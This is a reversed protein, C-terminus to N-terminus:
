DPWVRRSSFSMVTEEQEKAPKSKEADGSRAVAKNVSKALSAAMKSTGQKNSM